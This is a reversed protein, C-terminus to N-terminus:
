LLRLVGSGVQLPWTVPIMQCKGSSPRFAWGSAMESSACHRRRQRSPAPCNGVKASKAFKGTSFTTRSSCKLCNSAVIQDCLNWQENCVCKQFIMWLRAWPVPTALEPLLSSGFWAEWTPVGPYSPSPPIRWCLGPCLLFLVRESGLKGVCRWDTYESVYIALVVDGCFLLLKSATM